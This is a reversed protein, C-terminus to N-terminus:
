VDVDSREILLHIGETLEHKDKQVGSVIGEKEKCEEEGKKLKKGFLKPTEKRNIWPTGQLHTDRFLDGMSMTLNQLDLNIEQTCNNTINKCEFSFFRNRM